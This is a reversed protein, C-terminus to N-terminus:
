RMEPPWTYCCLFRGVLIIYASERTDVVITRFAVGICTVKRGLLPPKHQPVDYVDSGIDIAYTSKM